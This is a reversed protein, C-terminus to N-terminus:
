GAYCTAQSLHALITRSTSALKLSILTSDGLIYMCIVDININIHIITCAFICLQNSFSHNYCVSTHIYIYMCMFDCLSVYRYYRYIQM